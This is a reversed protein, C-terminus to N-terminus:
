LGAFPDHDSSSGQFFGSTHQQQQQNAVPAFPDHPQQMPAAAFPDNPTTTMGSGAPAFPQQLDFPDTTSPQSQQGAYQQQTRPFSQPQSQQGAYQQTTSFSQPQNQPGSRAFPDNQVPYSFIPDVQQQQIPQEFPDGGMPMPPPAVTPPATSGYSQHQQQPTAGGYSQHPQQPAPPQHFTPPPVEPAPAPAAYGAPEMSELEQQKALQRKKIKEIDRRCNDYISRIERDTPLWQKDDELEELTKYLTVGFEQKYHKMESKLLAMETSLKAENGGLAASKGANVIKDQWSTAPTFAAARTAAAQNIREQLKGRKIDLASIERQATILPPQLTVTLTDDSSYFSPHKSLPAVYDYLEVGFTQKRAKLERDILLLDTKLKTKMSATGAASLASSTADKVGSTISDWLSM